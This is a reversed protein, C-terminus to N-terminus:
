SPAPAAGAGLDLPQLQHYADLAPLSAGAHGQRRCELLAGERDLEHAHDHDRGDEPELPM